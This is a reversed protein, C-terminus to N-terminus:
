LHEPKALRRTQLKLLLLRSGKVVASEHSRVRSGSAIREVNQLHLACCFLRSWVRSLRRAEARTEPNVSVTNTMTVVQALQRSSSKNM